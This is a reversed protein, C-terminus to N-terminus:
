APPSDAADEGPVLALRRKVPIHAMLREALAEAQRRIDPVATTEWFAGRTVPGLAFLRDSVADDRGILAGEATVALGLELLDPRALGGRLLDQVLPDAIEAYNSQPGSCNIIRGVQLGSPQDSGAFAVQALVRGADAQFGHLRGRRVVLQGARRAAEIRAAVEPAMRHRRVEWWPRLHRLFRQKEAIPLRRWLDQTDPRLADIVARWDQGADEARGIEDRVRRLLATVTRPATGAPLFRPYSATAAHTAPLLGRRSMATIRGKHGADLLSIVVDVMTLGTGILLVQARPDLAETIAPEWPDGYYGPRSRDPPSNGIALVAADVEYIRGCGVQVSVGDGSPRLEEAEDAVLYLKRGSDEGRIGEALISQIYSGYLRRPAFTLRDDAGSIGERQEPPLRRLWALFHDADDAFASMNSARVNLLHGPNGTAYALGRGFQANREILYVRDWRGARRLLHIALLSGSFGSGIVAIHRGSTM